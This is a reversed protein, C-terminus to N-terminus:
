ASTSRAAGTPRAHHGRRRRDAGRRRRQQHARRPRRAFRAVDAFLRAVDAESPLTPKRRATGPPHAAKFDEIFADSVDCIHLKAGHAILLDSIARGIGSAGATVLVRLNEPLAFIDHGSM